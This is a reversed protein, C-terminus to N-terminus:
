AALAPGRIFVPEVPVPPPKRLGLVLAAPSTLQGSEASFGAKPFFGM